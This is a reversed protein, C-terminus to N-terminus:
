HKAAIQLRNTDRHLLLYGSAMALPSHKQDADAHLSRPDSFQAPWFPRLHPTGPLAIPLPLQLWCAGCSVEHQGAEQAPSDEASKGCDQQGCVMGHEFKRMKAQHM